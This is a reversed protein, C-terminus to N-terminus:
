QIVRQLDSEIENFLVYTDEALIRFKPFALRIVFLCELLWKIINFQVCNRLLGQMLNCSYSCVCAACEFHSSFPFMGYSM